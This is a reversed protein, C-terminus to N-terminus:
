RLSSSVILLLAFLHYSCFKVWMKNSKLAIGFIENSLEEKHHCRFLFFHLWEFVNAIYNSIIFTINKRHM